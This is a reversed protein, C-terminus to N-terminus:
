VLALTQLVQLWWQPAPMNWRPQPSLLRPDHVSQWEPVNLVAAPVCPHESQAVPWNALLLPKLAQLAHPLCVNWFWIPLFEHM